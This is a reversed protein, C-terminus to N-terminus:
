PYRPWARRVAAVCPSIFSAMTTRYLNPHSAELSKLFEGALGLCETGTAGSGIALQLAKAESHLGLRVLEAELSKFCEYGDQTTM